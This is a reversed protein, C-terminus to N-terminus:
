VLLFTVADCGVTQLLHFHGDSWCAVKLETGLKNTRQIRYNCRQRSLAFWNSVNGKRFAM